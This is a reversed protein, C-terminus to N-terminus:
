RRRRPGIFVQRHRRLWLEGVMIITHSWNQGAADINIQKTLVLARVLGISDRNLAWALPGWGDIDSEDIGPCNNRLLSQLVNESGGEALGHSHM